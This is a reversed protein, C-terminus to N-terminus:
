TTPSKQMDGRSNQASCLRSPPRLPIHSETFAFKIESEEPYELDEILCREPGIVRADEILNTTDDSVRGGIKESFACIEVPYRGARTPKKNICAQLGSSKCSRYTTTVEYGSWTVRMAEGDSLRLVLSDPKRCDVEQVPGTAPCWNPCFQNEPLELKHKAGCIWTYLDFQILPRVSSVQFHLPRGTMNQVIFDVTAEGPPRSTAGEAASGTPWSPGLDFCTQGAPLGCQGRWPVCETGEPCVVDRCCDGGICRPVCANRFMDCVQQLECGESDWGIDCTRHGCPDEALIQGYVTEILNILILITVVIPILRMVRSVKDASSRPVPSVEPV